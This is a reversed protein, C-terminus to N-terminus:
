FYFKYTLSFTNRARELAKPVHAHKGGSRDKTTTTPDQGEERQMQPRIGLRHDDTGQPPVTRGGAGPTRHNLALRVGGHRAEQLCARLGHGKTVRGAHM